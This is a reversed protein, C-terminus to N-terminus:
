VVDETELKQDSSDGNQGVVRMPPALKGLKQLKKRRRVEWFEIGGAGIACLFGMTITLGICWSPRNYRNLAWMCSAM